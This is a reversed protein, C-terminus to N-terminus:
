IPLKLKTLFYTLSLLRVLVFVLRQIYYLFIIFTQADNANSLYQGTLYLLLKQFKFTCYFM